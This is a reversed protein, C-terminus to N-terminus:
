GHYAKEIQLLKGQSSYVILLWEEKTENWFIQSVVKKSGNEPDGLCISKWLEM